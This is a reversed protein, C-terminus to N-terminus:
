TPANSGSYLPFLRHTASFDPAAARLPESSSGPPNVRDQQVAIELPMHMNSDPFCGPVSGSSISIAPSQLRPDGSSFDFSVTQSSGALFDESFEAVHSMSKSRPQTYCLNEDQTNDRTTAATNSSNNNCISKATRAHFNRSSVIDVMMQQVEFAVVHLAKVQRIQALPLAQLSAGKGALADAADNGITDEFKVKGRRVDSVSAHGKVKTILFSETLRNELLADLEKWLDANHVKQWHLAKWASLHRTCGNIVYTSDSKVHVRRPENLLVHIVAALEARQNTQSLGILSAFHNKAHGHGWWAGVGARRLSKHQNHICAGDTFVVVRGHLFTETQQDQIPHELSLEAESVMRTEDFILEAVDPSVEVGNSVIGCATFCKPWDPRWALTAFPHKFREERWAPCEWYMHDPTEPVGLACFPCVDHEVLKARYLRHGFNVAGALVSRLIGKHVASSASSRLHQTTSESDVGQELGKMDGRRKAARQWLLGRM